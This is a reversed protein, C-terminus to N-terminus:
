EPSTVPRSGAMKLPRRTAEDNKYYGLMVQPGKVLLEGDEALKLETEDLTKGVSDFRMEDPGSLTVVPSTETLGYGDIFRSVSSGCSSM